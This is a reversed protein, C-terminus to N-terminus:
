CPKSCVCHNRLFSITFLKQCKFWINQINGFVLWMLISNELSNLFHVINLPKSHQLCQIYLWLCIFAYMMVTCGVPIVIVKWMFLSMSGFGSHSFQQHAISLKSFLVLFLLITSANTLFPPPACSLLLFSDIACINVYFCSTVMLLKIRSIHFSFMISLSRFFLVVVVFFVIKRLNVPSSIYCGLM